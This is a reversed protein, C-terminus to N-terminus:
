DRSLLNDKLAKFIKDYVTADETAPLTLQINLNITVGTPLQTTVEAVKVVKKEAEKVEVKPKVPIAEFDAFECLTKFTEVSYKLASEGADTTGSFFDRLPQFDKNPADPHLKFLDGYARKLANAMVSKSIGIKKFNKYDETPVGSQDIFGIFKLVSPIYRANSTKFGIQPMTKVRIQDPTGLKQIAKLFKKLPLQSPIYPYKKPLAIVTFLGEM